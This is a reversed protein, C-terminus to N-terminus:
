KGIYLEKKYSSNYTLGLVSHYSLGFRYSGEPIDSPIVFQLRDREFSNAKLIKQDKALRVRTKFFQHKKILVANIVPAFTTDEFNIDYRTPNKVTFDLTIIDGAKASDQKMLFDIQLCNVIQFRDTFFGNIEENDVNYNRSKPGDNVNVFVPQNGFNKELQWLDFQTKRGEVSSITTAPKGTFFTYLSPERYSAIFVVPDNGALKAIAKYVSEKGHFGLKTPLIDTTIIIRAAFVLLLSATVYRTVYRTLRFDINLKNNLLVIMPISAAITWHPEAHGRFTTLLFTTLFGTIIFYQARESPTQAKYKWIVYFVAALTVPNFVALQNFVYELLYQWRFSSARDVLQYQFSPFGHSYQWWFHPICLLFALILAVWSKGKKLLSLNSIAVLFIVLIGQYKSYILGAMSVALLITYLWDYKSTFRKYAFLFLATFFLLPVDPTTIFGYVSFMVISASIAFFLLVKRNTFEKNDLQKWILILTGLQLLTTMFRVGLNGEFFWSSIRILIAVMPPHDFYGFSLNKGYLFYYAEDSNIETYVSQILNIGLWILLLVIFLKRAPYATNM